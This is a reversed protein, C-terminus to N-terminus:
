LFFIISFFFLKSIGFSTGFAINHKQFSCVSHQINRYKLSYVSGSLPLEETTQSLSVTLSGHTRYEVTSYQVKRYQVTKYQVSHYISVFCSHFLRSSFLDSIINVFLTLCKCSFSCNVICSGPPILGAFAKAM